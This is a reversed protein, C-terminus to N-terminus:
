RLRPGGPPWRPGPPWGPPAPQRRRPVGGRPRRGPGPGPIREARPPVRPGGGGRSRRAAAARRPRPLRGPCRPRAHPEGRTRRLRTALVLMVIGAVVGIWLAPQALNSYTGVAGVLELVGRGEVDLAELRGYDHYTMPIVGLLMRGVINKWFWVSDLNVLHMIHFMSVFAGTLVPVVLAWIFPVSRAWASCLMLWGVTPLAWLAYVPIGALMY